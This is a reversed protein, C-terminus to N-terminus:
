IEAVGSMYEIYNDDVLTATYTIRTGSLVLYRYILSIMRADIDIGFIWMGNFSVSLIINDDRSIIMVNEIISVSPNQM